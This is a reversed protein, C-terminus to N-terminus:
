EKKLSPLGIWSCVEKQLTTCVEQMELTIVLATKTEHHEIARQFRSLCQVMKAQMELWQTWTFLDFPEDYGMPETIDCAARVESLSPPFQLTNPFEQEEQQQNDERMTKTQSM